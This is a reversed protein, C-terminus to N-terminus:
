AGAKDVALRCGFSKPTAVHFLVKVEGADCQKQLESDDDENTPVACTFVLERVKPNDCRGIKLLDLQSWYGCSGCTLTSVKM